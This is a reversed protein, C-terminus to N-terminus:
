NLIQYHTGKGSGRKKRGNGIHQMNVLSVSNINKQCLIIEVIFRCQWIGMRMMFIMTWKSMHDPNEM